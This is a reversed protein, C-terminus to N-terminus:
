GCLETITGTEEKLLWLEHYTFGSQKGWEANLDDTKCGTGTGPIWKETPDQGVLRLQKPPTDVVVYKTPPTKFASAKAGGSRSALTM